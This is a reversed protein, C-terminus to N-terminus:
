VPHARTCPLRATKRCLTRTALFVVIILIKRKREAWRQSLLIGAEITKGLGVEDALIAGQFGQWDCPVIQCPASAVFIHPGTSDFGCFIISCNHKYDAIQESLANLHTTDLLRADKPDATFSAISLVKPKLIQDEVEGNWCTEFSSKVVSEM